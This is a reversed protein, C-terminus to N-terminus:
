ACVAMQAMALARPFLALDTFCFRLMQSPAILLRVQELNGNPSRSTKNVTIVLDSLGRGCVYRATIPRPVPRAPRKHAPPNCQEQIEETDMAKEKAEVHRRRTLGLQGEICVIRRVRYGLTEARVELRYEICHLM